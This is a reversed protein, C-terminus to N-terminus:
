QHALNVQGTVAHRSRTLCGPPKSLRGTEVSERPACGFKDEFASSTRLNSGPIGSRSVRVRWGCKVGIRAAEGSKAVSKRASGHPRFLATRASFVASDGFGPRRVVLAIGAVTPFAAYKGRISAPSLPTGKFGSVTGCAPDLIRM